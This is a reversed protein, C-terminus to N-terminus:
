RAGPRLAAGERRDGGPKGGRPGSARPLPGPSPVVARLSGQLDRLRRKPRFAPDASSWGKVARRLHRTAAATEDQDALLRAHSRNLYPHAPRKRLAAEYADAARDLEGAKRHARALYL